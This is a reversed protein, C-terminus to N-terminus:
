YRQQPWNNKKNKLHEDDVKWKLLCFRNFDCLCKFGENDL